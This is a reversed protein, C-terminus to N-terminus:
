EDNGKFMYGIGPITQIYEPQRPDTEVKVRLRSVLGRVLDRDGQGTYGWVREVISETPLVQNRNMMLTYLLRFELHTLRQSIKGSVGVTRTAPDLVLGAVHLSPLSFTPVSGSRRLLVGVQAILVKVSVPPSVILDAGLKLLEAHLREDVSGLALILPVLTEARIERVQRQPSQDPLSILIMDAPREAWNQIALDLNNATTVALGARQLIMSFTAIDDPDEAILLAYM